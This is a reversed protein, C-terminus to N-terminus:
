PQLMIHRGPDDDHEGDHQRDHDRSGFGAGWVKSMSVIRVMRLLRILSIYVVWPTPTTRSALIGILYFFPIVAVADLWFRGYRIYTSTAIAGSMVTVKLVSSALVVGM